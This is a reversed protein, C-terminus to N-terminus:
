QKSGQTRVECPLFNSRQVHSGLGWDKVGEVSMQEPRLQEIDVM